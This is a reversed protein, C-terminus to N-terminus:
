LDEKNNFRKMYIRIFACLAYLFSLILGNIFTIEKGLIYNPLTYRVSAFTFFAVITDYVIQNM